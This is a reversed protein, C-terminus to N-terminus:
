IYKIAHIFDTGKLHTNYVSIFILFATLVIYCAQNMSITIMFQMSTISYYKEKLSEKQFQTQTQAKRKKTKNKQKNTEDQYLQPPTKRALRVGDSSFFKPFFSLLNALITAMFSLASEAPQSCTKLVDRSFSPFQLNGNNNLLGM